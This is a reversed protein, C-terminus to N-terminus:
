KKIKILLQLCWLLKIKKPVKPFVFWVFQWHVDWQDTWDNNGLNMLLTEKYHQYLIQSKKNNCNKDTEIDQMFYNELFSWVSIISCSAM